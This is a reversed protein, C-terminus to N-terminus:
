KGGKKIYEYHTNGEADATASITIGYGLAEDDKYVIDEIETVKACPIVVRKVTDGNLITEVIWACDKQEESNAKVTIGSDLTGTVNGDGYVTKLVEPNLAEILAFQFTDDKETQYNHVTDGGWAKIKDSEPSNSNTLGEESIYGLAKFAENLEATADTPLVTGLPARYVAGGVKPKSVTVLKADAM